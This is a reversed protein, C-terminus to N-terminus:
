MTVTLYVSAKGNADAGTAINDSTGSTTPDLSLTGAKPSGKNDDGTVGNPDIVGSISPDDVDFTKFIIKASGDVSPANLTATVKVIKRNVTDTPSNKDPFIRSGNELNPNGDIVSNVSEFVVSAVLPTPNPCPNGTEDCPEPIFDSSQANSRFYSFSLGIFLVIVSFILLKKM